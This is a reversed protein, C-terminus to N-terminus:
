GGMDKSGAPKEIEGRTWAPGLSAPGGIMQQQAEQKNQKGLQDFDSFDSMM